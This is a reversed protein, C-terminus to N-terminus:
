GDDRVLCAKIRQKKNARAEIHGEPGMEALRIEGDDLLHEM